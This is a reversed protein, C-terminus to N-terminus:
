KFPIDEATMTVGCMQCVLRQQDYSMQRYANIIAREDDTYEDDIMPVDLGMLWVPNVRLIRAMQWLRDAKPTTLGKKYQSITGETVDLRKALDVARIDRVEMAIRLRDKFEAKVNLM